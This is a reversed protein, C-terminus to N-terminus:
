PASSSNYNEYMSYIFEKAGCLYMNNEKYSIITANGLPCESSMGQYLLLPIKKECISYINPVDTRNEPLVFNIYPKNYIGQTCVHHQIKCISTKFDKAYKNHNYCADLEHFLYSFESDNVALYYDDQAIFHM